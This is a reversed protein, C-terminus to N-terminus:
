GGLYYFYWISWLICAVLLTFSRMKIWKDLYGSKYDYILIITIYLTVVLHLMWLFKIM